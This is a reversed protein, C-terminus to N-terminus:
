KKESRYWKRTKARNTRKIVQDGKGSDFRADSVFGRKCAGGWESIPKIGTQPDTKPSEDSM